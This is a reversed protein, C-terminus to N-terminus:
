LCALRHAKSPPSIPDVLTYLTTKREAHYWRMPGNCYNCIVVRSWNSLSSLLRHRCSFYVGLRNLEALRPKSLVPCCFSEM